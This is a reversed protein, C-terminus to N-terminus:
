REHAIALESWHPVAVTGRVVMREPQPWIPRLRIRRLIAPLVSRIETEALPQGLCRRAGGGFPLYPTDAADASLFREPRFADPDPFARGDRHVLV